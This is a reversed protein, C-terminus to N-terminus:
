STVICLQMLRRRGVATYTCSFKLRIALLYLGLHLPSSNKIRRRM